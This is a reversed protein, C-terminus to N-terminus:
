AGKPSAADFVVDFGNLRPIFYSILTKLVAMEGKTIPVTM